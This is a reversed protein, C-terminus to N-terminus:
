QTVQSFHSACPTGVLARQCYARVKGKDLVWKLRIALLEEAGGKM